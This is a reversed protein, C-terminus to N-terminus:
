RLLPLTAEIVLLGSGFGSTAGTGSRTSVQRPCVERRHASRFAVTWARTLQANEFRWLRLQPDGGTSM